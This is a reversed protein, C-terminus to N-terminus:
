SFQKRKKLEFLSNEREENESIECTQLVFGCHKRGEFSAHIPQWPFQHFDFVLTSAIM